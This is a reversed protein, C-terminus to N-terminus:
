VANVNLHAIYPSHLDQTLTCHVACKCAECTESDAKDVGVVHVERDWDDDLHAYKQSQGQVYVATNTSQMCALHPSGKRGVQRERHMQQAYTEKGSICSPMIATEQDSQENSSLNVLPWCLM